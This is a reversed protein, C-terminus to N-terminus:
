SLDLTADEHHLVGLAEAATNLIRQVAITDDLPM